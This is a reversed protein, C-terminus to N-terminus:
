RAQGVPPKGPVVAAGIPKRFRLFVQQKLYHFEADLVLGAEAPLKLQDERSMLQQDTHVKVGRDRAFDILFLMGGPKIAKATSQLLPLRDAAAVDHLMNCLLAADVSEAALKTDKATSLVVDINALHEREIRQRVPVLAKESVDVAFVKGRPGVAQALRFTFYGSGCGVDAVHAGVKLGMDQIVRDPQQWQDRDEAAFAPTCLAIALAFARIATQPQRFFAYQMTPEQRQGKM